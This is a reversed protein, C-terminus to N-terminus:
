LDFMKRATRVDSDIDHRHVLIRAPAPGPVGGDAAVLQRFFSRVTIQAYGRDRAERLLAGYEGLRTPMFYDAYLRNLLSIM